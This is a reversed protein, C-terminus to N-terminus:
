EALILRSDHSVLNNRIQQVDVFTEKIQFLNYWICNFSSLLVFYAKNLLEIPILTIRAIEHWLFYLRVAFLGGLYLNLISPRSIHRIIYRRQKSFANYKMTVGSYTDHLLSNSSVDEKRRGKSSRFDTKNQFTKFLM